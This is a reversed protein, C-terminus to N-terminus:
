KFEYSEAVSIVASRCTARSTADFPLYDSSRKGNYQGCTIAYKGSSVGVRNESVFIDGVSSTEATGSGSTVDAWSAADGSSTFYVIQVSLYDERSQDIMFVCSGAIAFQGASLSSVDEVGASVSPLASNVDRAFKESDFAECVDTSAFGVSSDIVQAGGASETASPASSADQGVPM